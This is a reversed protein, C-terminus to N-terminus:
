TRWRSRDRAIETAREFGDIMGQETFDRTVRARGANGMAARREEHALLVAMRAAMTAPDPQALLVGAIGDAVYRQSLADREALVPIRLAMLDLYGFAANDGGAAVWALDAASLVAHQDSEQGAHLVIETIGLAAAHMRLDEDDSGPGVMVVRLGPHRPALLAVARLLAGARRRATPDYICAILQDGAAGAVAAVPLPRVREFADIAVGVDAAVPEFVGPSRTGNTTAPETTFLYGTAALREGLRSDPGRGLKGGAPIRRVLAGREALRIALSAVMQERESHVYVVEVYHELMVQRLRLSEHMWPGGMPVPTLEVGPLAEAAPSLRQEVASDARCVYTCQYGRGALAVAAAGFARASGSWEAPSYYFLVRM